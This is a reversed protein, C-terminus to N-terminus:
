DVGDLTVYGDADMAAMRGTHLWSDAGAGVVQPGAVVLLGRKGPRAPRTPAAPDALTCVTDPLPLGATDPKAMGYVPNAVVLAAAQGPAWGSRVKGGTLRELRHAVTAPLVGGSLCVRLTELDGRAAHPAAAVAALRERRAPLVTPARKAVARLLGDRGPRDALVITAASLVTLGLGTVLGFVDCFPEAVLVREQGALMDPIWLRTQFIGAVLNAHTYAVPAAAGHVGQPYLLVAIDRDPHLRHQAVAPRTREVLDAYRVADSGRRRLGDVLTRVMRRPRGLAEDPRTAVVRAPVATSSRLAAVAPVGPDALLVGCGAHGLQRGLATVSARPDHESVTAGLRWAAFLAAVHERCPPLAVGVRGGPGVGLEALGSALRDVEAALSAYTVARGRAQVAATEAFDRAADDLLRVLPVDPYPYSVPVGPPYALQWPRAQAAPAGLLAPVERM